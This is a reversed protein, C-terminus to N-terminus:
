FTRGETESISGSYIFIFNSGKSFRLKEINITHVKISQDFGQEMLKLGQFFIQIM